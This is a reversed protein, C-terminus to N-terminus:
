YFSKSLHSFSHYSQVTFTAFITFGHLRYLYWLYKVVSMFTFTLSSSISVAAIWWRYQPSIHIAWSLIFNVVNSIHYEILDRHIRRRLRSLHLRSTSWIEASSRVHATLCCDPMKSWFEKDLDSTNTKKHTYVLSFGM